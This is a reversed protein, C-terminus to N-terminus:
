EVGAGAPDEREVHPAIRGPALITSTSGGRRTIKVHPMSPASSRGGPVLVTSTTNSASPSVRDDRERVPVQRGLVKAARVLGPPAFEEPDQHALGARRASDAPRTAEPQIRDPRRAPDPCTPAAARGPRWRGQSGPRGFSFTNCNQPLAAKVQCPGCLARSAAGRHEEFLAGFLLLQPGFQALVVGIEQGVLHPGAQGLAALAALGPALHHALDALVAPEADAPRLLEAPLSPRRRVLEDEEVLRPAGTRGNGNTVMLVTPGVMM